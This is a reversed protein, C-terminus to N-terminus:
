QLFRTPGIEAALDPRLVKVAVAREYKLDRALFVKAMGGQGLEREIRYRNALAENLRETLEAVIGGYEGIRRREYWGFM